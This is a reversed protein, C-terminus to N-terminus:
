SSTMLCGCIYDALMQDGEHIVAKDHHIPKCLENFSHAMGHLAVWSLCTIASLDSLVHNVSPPFILGGM